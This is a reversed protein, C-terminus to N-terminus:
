SLRLVVLVVHFLIFLSVLAAHDASAGLPVGIGSFFLVLWM